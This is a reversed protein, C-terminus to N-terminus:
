VDFFIKAKMNTNEGHSHARLTLILSRSIIKAFYNQVGVLFLTFPNNILTCRNSNPTFNQNKEEDIIIHFRSSLELPLLVFRHVFLIM